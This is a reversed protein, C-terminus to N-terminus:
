ELTASSRGPSQRLPAESVALISATYKGLGFCPNQPLIHRRGPEDSDDAVLADTWIGKMLMGAQRRLNGPTDEMAWCAM